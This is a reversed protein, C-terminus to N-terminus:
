EIAVAAINDDVNAGAGAINAAAINADADVDKDNSLSNKYFKEGCLNGETINKKRLDKNVMSELLESITPLYTDFVVNIQTTEKILENVKDCAKNELFLKEILCSLIYFVLDLINFTKVDVMNGPPPYVHNIGIVESPIVGETEICEKIPYNCVFGGDIYLKQDYILPSFLGPLSASGKVAEVLQLDPHTYHSLQKKSITRVDTVYIYLSINTKEYFEKLTISVNMDNAELFPKLYNAFCDSHFLGNSQLINVINEPDIYFIKDYMCNILYDDYENCPHKLCLLAGMIAGISTGHISEINDLSVHNNKIYYSLAGYDVLGRSAGGPLVIHKYVM